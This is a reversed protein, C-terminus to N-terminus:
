LSVHPKGTDSRKPDLYPSQAIRVQDVRRKSSALGIPLNCRRRLLGFLHIECHVSDGFLLSVLLTRISAYRSPCLATTSSWRYPRWTPRSLIHRRMSTGCLGPGLKSPTVNTRHSLYPHTLLLFGSRTGPVLFM